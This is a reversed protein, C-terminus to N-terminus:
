MDLITLLLTKYSKENRKINNSDVNQINIMYNFFYYTRNKFDIGKVKNSM